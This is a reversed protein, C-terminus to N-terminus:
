RVALVNMFVQGSTLWDALQDRTLVTRDPSQVTFGADALVDYLAHSEAGAATLGAPWYEIVWRRCTRLLRPAGRLVALEAGQTDVKIADAVDVVDDLRMMPVTVTADLRRVADRYLSSQTSEAHQYFPVDGTQDGCAAKIVQVPAGFADLREWCRADPEIAVIREAGARLAAAIVSGANAGVDVVTAGPRIGELLLGIVDGKPFTVSM